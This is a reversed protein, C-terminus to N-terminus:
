LDQIAKSKYKVLVLGLFTAILCIFPLAVLIMNYSGTADFIYGMFAPGLAGGITGYLGIVAFIVGLSKLGFLESSVLMHMPAICGYALGFVFAFVYFAWIEEAFYLWGVAITLLILCFSLTHRIGLKDSIFGVSIRGAINFVALVSLISAAAIEAIGIEIAYPVIHVAVTQQCYLWLFQITGFIWFPSTRMAESFSLGQIGDVITNDQMDVTEGYARQGMQAPDKKIFQALPIMIFWAVIGLILFTHQLSYASLLTQVLLPWVIAGVGLVTFPISIAVGRKKVFWHPITILIPTLCCSLGLGLFVGWFVYVQALTTVHSMLVLGAGMFIGGLTVLIRPGYIDCLKGTVVSVFGLMLFAISPAVSLPGREWGFELLLPRLFIGFTQTAISCVLAMGAGAIVVVWGYHIRSFPMIAFELM